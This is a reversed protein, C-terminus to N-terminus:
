ARTKEAVSLVLPRLYRAGEVSNGISSWKLPEPKTALEPECMLETLYTAWGGEIKMLEVIELRFRHPKPTTETIDACIVEIEYADAPLGETLRRVCDAYVM